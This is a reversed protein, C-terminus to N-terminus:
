EAIRRSKFRPSSLRNTFVSRPRNVTRAYSAPSINIPSTRCISSRASPSVAVGSGSMPYSSRVAIAVAKFAARHFVQNSAAVHDDRPCGGAFLERNDTPVRV